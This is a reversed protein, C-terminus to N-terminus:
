LTPTKARPAIAPKAGPRVSLGNRSWEIWVGSPMVQKVKRLSKKVKGKFNDIRKVDYNCGLQLMLGSWDIFQTENKQNAAYVKFAILTYLDLALPSRKLERLARM